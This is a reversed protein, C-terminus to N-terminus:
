KAPLAPAVDPGKFPWRTRAASIASRSEQMLAQAETLAGNLRPTTEDLMKQAAVAASGAKETAQNLSQLSRVAETSLVPISKELAQLSADARALTQRTQLLTAPVESGALHDIHALMADLQRRTGQLEVM